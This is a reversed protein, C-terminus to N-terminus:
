RLQGCSYTSDSTFPSRVYIEKTIWVFIDNFNRKSIEKIVNPQLVNETSIYRFSFVILTPMLHTAWIGLKKLKLKIFVKFDM